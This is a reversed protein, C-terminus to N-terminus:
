KGQRTRSEEHLHAALTHLAPLAAQLLTRDEASLREWQERYLAARRDDWIRLRDVAEPTVCLLAARADRPDAERVMLGLGTLQRVLTSVSNGALRLEDAAASVRIGPNLRVLRLLEAQAVPMPREPAAARLRRRVLRNVDALLEGWERAPDEGSM